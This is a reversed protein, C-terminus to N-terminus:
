HDLEGPDPFTYEPIVRRGTPVVRDPIAENEVWAKILKKGSKRMLYERAMKLSDYASISPM